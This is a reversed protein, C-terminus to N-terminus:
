AAVSTGLSSPSVEAIALCPFIFPILPILTFICYNQSIAGLPDITLLVCSNLFEWYLDSLLLNLNSGGVRPNESTKNVSERM